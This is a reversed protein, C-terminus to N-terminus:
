EWQVDLDNYNSNTNNPMIPQNFSNISDTLNSENTPTKLSLISNIDTQQTTNAFLDELQKLIALNTEASNESSISPVHEFEAQNRYGWTNFLKGRLVDGLADISTQQKNPRFYTPYNKNLFRRFLGQEGESGSSEIQRKAADIINLLEKNGGKDSSMKNQRAELMANQYNSSLDHMRKNELLQREAFDRSWAREKEQALRNQEAARAALIQNALQNNEGMLRSEEQDYALAANGVANGIPRFKGWFGGEAPIPKDQINNAFNLLAARLAKDKQMQSMGLSEQASQIARQIGSDFPSYEQINQKM